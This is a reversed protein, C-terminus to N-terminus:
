LLPVFSFASFFEADFKDKAVKKALVVKSDIPTLLSGGIKLQEEWARPIEKTEASSIIKDFPAEQSLGAKGDGALLTINQFDYRRLNSEAFEKLEPFYEISFVKGNSGVLVSLLATLYGSGTGVELVKEGKKPQLKELMFAITSPQSTTMGSLIPIPIDFYAEDKFDVPVFNVRDIKLFADIVAKTKIRGEQVLQEVFKRSNVVSM